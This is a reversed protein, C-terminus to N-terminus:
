SIHISRFTPTVIIPELPVAYYQRVVFQEKVFGKEWATYWLKTFEKELLASDIMWLNRSPFVTGKTFIEPYLKSYHEGSLIGKRILISMTDGSDVYPLNTIEKWQEESIFYYLCTHRAASALYEETRRAASEIDSVFMGLVHVPDEDTYEYKTHLNREHCLISNSYFGTTYTYQRRLIQYCDLPANM